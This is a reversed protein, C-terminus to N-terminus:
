PWVTAYAHTWTPACRPGIVRRAVSRALTSERGPNPDPLSMGRKPRYPRHDGGGPTSGGPAKPRSGDYRPGPTPAGVAGVTRVPADRPQYGRTGGTVRSLAAARAQRRLRAEEALAEREKTREKHQQLRLWRHEDGTTQAVRALGATTMGPINSERVTARAARHVGEVFRGKFAGEGYMFGWETNLRRLREAFSLEDEDNRQVAVNLTEVLTAVSAEDVHRWIMWKILELDSTVEGPNGARRTPMLMMVESKLPEKTFDELIHFAEGEPINNDDCAKAFKRLLQFVKGPPSGDWEDNVGFSHAVEKKRRVLTRAQRRTYAVSKNELAYTECDVMVRFYPHNVVIKPPVV